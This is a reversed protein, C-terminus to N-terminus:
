ILCSKTLKMMDYWEHALASARGNVRFAHRGIPFLSFLWTDIWRFQRCVFRMADCFLFFIAFINRSVIIDDVNAIWVEYYFDLWTKNLPYLGKSQAKKLVLEWGDSKKEFDAPKTNRILTLLQIKKPIFPTLVTDGTSHLYLITEVNLYWAVLFYRAFKSSIHSIFASNRSPHLTAM